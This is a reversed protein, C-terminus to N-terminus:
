EAALIEQLDAVAEGAMSQTLEVLARDFASDAYYTGEGELVAVQWSEGGGHVTFTFLPKLSSRDVDTAYSMLRLKFLKGLWLGVNEDEDDPTGARAWFAKARDDANRHVFSGQVGDGAVEVKEIETEALPQLRREVLRQSAFLLPRLKADDILFVRGDARVYRDKSGYTEGGLTLEVTGSRRTVSIVGEPEDFGFVDGDAASAADLERLASLPAFSAWLEAAADNGRFARRTEEIRTEPEPEEAEEEVDDPEADADAAAAEADEAEAVEEEVAEGEPEAAPEPEVVVEKRETTEVWIYEGRDDSRREVTVDLDDSAHTLKQLDSEAAVYVTVESDDSGDAEDATWTLYSAVLSALLVGSLIMIRTM